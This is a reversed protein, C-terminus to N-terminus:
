NKREDGRIEMERDYRQDLERAKAIAANQFEKNNLHQKAYELDRILEKTGRLWRRINVSSDKEVHLRFETKNQVFEQVYEKALLAISSEWAAWRCHDIYTSNGSRGILAAVKLGFQGLVTGEPPEKSGAILKKCRGYHQNSANICQLWDKKIVQREEPPVEGFRMEVSCDISFLVLNNMIEPHGSNGVQSFAERETMHLYVNQFEVFVSFWAADLCEIVAKDEMLEALKRIEDTGKEALFYINASYKAM